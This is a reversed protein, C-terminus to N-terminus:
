RDSLRYVFKLGSWVDDISAVKVDVLGADLCIMRVIDDSLDSKIGSSKKPWSMWLQGRVSLHNKLEEIESRLTLKDIYFAQVWELTDNPWSASDLTTLSPLLLNYKEPPHFVYADKLSNIDLKKQLDESTNM